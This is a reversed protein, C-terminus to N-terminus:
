VQFLLFIVPRSISGLTVKVGIEAGTQITINMDSSIAKRANSISISAIQQPTSFINSFIGITATSNAACSLSIKQLVLNYPAIYPSSNSPNNAGIELWRNVGASGDFSAVISLSGRFTSTVNRWQPFGDRVVLVNNESGIPLKTVDDANRYLIDGANTTPDFLLKKWDSDNVGVKQFVGIGNSILALSGIPAQFPTSLPSEDLEFVQTEDITILGM